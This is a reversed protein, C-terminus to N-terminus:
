VTVWEGSLEGSLWEGEFSPTLWEGELTPALWEGEFSGIIYIASAVGTALGTWTIAGTVSGARSTIGTAVGFWDISGTASGGPSRAGTAAGVWAVAGTASAKPIRTGDVVGLWAVAGSASGSSVRAGTATGAWTIAGTASGDNVGVAPSEGTSSGVWAIAGTAAGSSVRTGTAAGVWSIAGVALGAKAGAGSVVGQWTIAGTAAGRSGRTGTAAGSWTVSGSAAGSSVRVGTASGVWAIAGTADGENAGVTPSVGTASGVWTVAGSASGDNVPVEPADGTASGAWTVSGTAAAASSRAGTASGTWAIAGTAAARAVRVGTASGVWAIAGTASARSARTGTVAGVWAIAGAAAGLSTRAGTASGVWATAGTAAGRSARTGTVSGAWTIAGTAAARSARAGTASGVWSIAGAAAGITAFTSIRVWEFETQGAYEIPGARTHGDLSSQQPGTLATPALVQVGDFWASVRGEVVRLRMEYTGTTSLGFSNQEYFEDHTAGDRYYVVIKNEASGGGVSGDQVVMEFGIYTLEEGTDSSGAAMVGGVTNMGSLRVLATVEHDEALTNYHVHSANDAIGGGGVSNVTLYKDLGGTVVQWRNSPSTSGDDWENSVWGTRPLFNGATLSSFDEYVLEVMTEGTAAGVWSIAGSASGTKPQVAGTASGVWAISGTASGTKPAGVARLRVFAVPGSQSTVTTFNLVPAVTGSGSTVTADFMYINGDHGQISGASVPARANTTGFTIGSATIAPSTITLSADTGVAVWATVVDGVALSIATSGTVSRNAAHTDDTGTSSVVGWTTDSSKSYSAMLGVIGPQTGGVQDFVTPGALSGTLERYDVGVETTHNDAVAGNNGGAQRAINTWSAEDSLTIDSYWGVRGALLIQDAATGAPHAISVTTTGTTAKAGVAVFSPPPITGDNFELVAIASTGVSTGLDSITVTTDTIDTDWFAAVSTSTQTQNVLTNSFGTPVSVAGVGDNSKAVLCVVTNGNTLSAGMTISISESAGGTDQESTSNDQVVTLSADSIVDFVELSYFHSNSGGADVNVTMSSPSGGVTAVWLIAQTGYNADGAWTQNAPTEVTSFSLSGTNSISWSKAVASNNNEAVAWVYLQSNATPTFSGSTLSASQTTGGSSDNRQTVTITV